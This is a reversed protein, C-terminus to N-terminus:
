KGTVLALHVEKFDPEEESVMQAQHSSGLYSEKCRALYGARVRCVTPM